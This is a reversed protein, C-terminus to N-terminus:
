WSFKHYKKTFESSPRSKGLSSVCGNRTLKRYNKDAKCDWQNRRRVTWDKKRDTKRDTKREKKWPKWDINFATTVINLQSNSTGSERNAVRTRRSSFASLFPPPPPPWRVRRRSPWIWGRVFQPLVFFILPSSSSSLILLLLLYSSSLLPSSLLPSSSSSPSVNGESSLFAFSVFLWGPADLHYLVGPLPEKLFQLSSRPRIPWTDVV